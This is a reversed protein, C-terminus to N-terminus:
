LKIYHCAGTVCNNSHLIQFAVYKLCIPHLLGKVHHTSKTVVHLGARTCGAHTYVSIKLLRRRSRESNLKTMSGRPLLHSSM